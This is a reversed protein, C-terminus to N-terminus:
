VRVPGSVQTFLDNQGQMMWGERDSYYLLMDVAPDVAYSLM